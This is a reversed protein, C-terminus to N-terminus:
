NEQPWEIGLELLLQQWERYANALVNCAEEVKNNSQDYIPLEFSVSKPDDHSITDIEIENQRYIIREMGSRILKRTKPDRKITFSYKCTGFKPEFFGHPPKTLKGHKAVNALDAGLPIYSCTKIQNWVPSIDRGDSRLAHCAYDKLSWLDILAHRVQDEVEYIPLVGNIIYRTPEGDEFNVSYSYGEGKRKRARMVSRNIRNLHEKLECYNM